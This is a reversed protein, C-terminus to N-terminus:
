ATRAAERLAKMFDSGDDFTSLLHRRCDLLLEAVLAYLDTPKPTQDQLRGELYVVKM